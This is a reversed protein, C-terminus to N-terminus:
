FAFNASMGGGLIIGLCRIHDMTILVKTKSSPWNKVGDLITLAYFIAFVWTAHIKWYEKWLTVTRYKVFQLISIDWCVIWLGLPSIKLIQSVQPYNIVLCHITWLESVFSTFIKFDLRILILLGDIDSESSLCIRMFEICHAIHSLIHLLSYFSHTLSYFKKCIKTVFAVLGSASFRLLTRPNNTGLTLM